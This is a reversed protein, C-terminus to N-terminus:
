KLLYEEGKPFKYTFRFITNGIDNSSEISKFYIPVYEEKNADWVEFHVSSNSDNIVATVDKHEKEAIEENIDSIIRNFCNRRLM